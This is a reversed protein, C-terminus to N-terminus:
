SIKELREIIGNQLSMTENLLSELASIDRQKKVELIKDSHTNLTENLQSIESFLTINEESEPVGSDREALSHCLCSIQNQSEMITDVTQNLGALSLLTQNIKLGTIRNSTQLLQDLIQAFPIEVDTTPILIEPTSIDAPDSVDSSYSDRIMFWSVGAIVVCLLISGIFIFSNKRIRTNKRKVPKTKKNM